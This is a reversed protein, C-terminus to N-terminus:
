NGFRNCISAFTSDDVDSCVGDRSIGWVGESIPGVDDCGRSRETVAILDSSCRDSHYYLVQLHEPAFLGQMRRAANELSTDSINHCKDRYSVAWADQRSPFVNGGSYRGLVGVLDSSCSDSHYFWLLDNANHTVVPRFQECAQEGTM